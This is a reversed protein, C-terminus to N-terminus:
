SEMSRQKVITIGKPWELHARYFDRASSVIAEEIKGTMGMATIAAIADTVTPVDPNRAAVARGGFDDRIKVTEANRVMGDAIHASLAARRNLQNAQVILAGADTEVGMSADDVAEDRAAAADLARQALEAAKRQAEAAEQRRREKEAERYRWLRKDVEKVLAAIPDSAGKYLKNAARVKDDFAKWAKYLPSTTRETELEDLATKGLRMQTAANRAQELTQVVPVDTLWQGIQERAEKASEIAVAPPQNDTPPVAGRASPIYKDAIESTTMTTHM